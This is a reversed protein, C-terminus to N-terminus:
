SKQVGFRGSEVVRLAEGMLAERRERWDDIKNAGRSQYLAGGIAKVQAAGPKMAALMGLVEPNEREWANWDDPDFWARALTAATEPTPKRQEIISIGVTGGDVEIPAEKTAHRLTKAMEAVMAVMVAYRVAIDGPHVWDEEGDWPPRAERAAECRLVYPCGGCRPGPRAPRKGDPGVADAQACVHEIDTRWQALTEAGEDDMWLDHTYTRVMRLSTVQRRIFAADPYHAAVLVAQIKQQISDLAGDDTAFSTKWDKVLVGDAAFDEDEYECPGVVDVIAHLWAKDHACPNWERDVSLMVEAKWRPDIGDFDRALWRLAVDRGETAAHVDMPPEPVGYFGRGKTVLERVASEALAKPDEDPYEIVAQLVAHAAIGSQFVDRDRPTNAAYLDLAHPCASLILNLTTSRHM